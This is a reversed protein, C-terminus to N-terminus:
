CINILKVFTLIKLNNHPNEYPSWINHTRLFLCKLIEMYCIKTAKLVM